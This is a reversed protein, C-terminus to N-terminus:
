TTGNGRGKRRGRRKAETETEIRRMENYDVIRARRPVKVCWQRDDRPNEVEDLDIIWSDPSLGSQFDSLGLLYDASVKFHRCLRALEVVGPASEGRLYTGATSQSVAAIEAVQMQTLRERSALARLRAAFDELNPFPEPM